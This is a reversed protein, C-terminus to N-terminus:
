QLGTAETSPSSRSPCSPTLPEEKTPASPSAQLSKLIGPLQFPWPETCGDKQAVSLTEASLKRDMVNPGCLLDGGGVGLHKLQETRQQAQSAQCLLTFTM